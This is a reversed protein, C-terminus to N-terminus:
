GALVEQQKRASIEDMLEVHHDTLVQLDDKGRYFDDEAIMKEKDLDRLDDL